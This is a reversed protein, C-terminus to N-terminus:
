TLVNKPMPPTAARSQQLFEAFIPNSEVEEKKIQRAMIVRNDGCGPCPLVLQRPEGMDVLSRRLNEMVSRLVDNSFFSVTKLNCVGYKFLCKSAEFAVGRGSKLLLIANFYIKIGM